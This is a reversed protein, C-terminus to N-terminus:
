CNEFNIIKSIDELCYNIDHGKPDLLNPVGGVDILSTKEGSM